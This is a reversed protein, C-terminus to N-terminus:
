PERSRKPEEPGEEDSTVFEDLREIFEHVPMGSRAAEEASEHWDDELVSPYTEAVHERFKRLVVEMKKRLHEPARDRANYCARLDEPDGPFQNSPPVEGTIAYRM